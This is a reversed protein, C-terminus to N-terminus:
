ECVWPLPGDPDDCLNVVTEYWKVITDGIGSALYRKPATALVRTDALVLSPSRKNPIYGSFRGLDDYLISVAAWSACTAAITPVAVVPIGLKGGVAKSLDLVKGGFEVISYAVGAQELSELFIPRVANRAKNVAIILLRTGLPAILAGSKLM